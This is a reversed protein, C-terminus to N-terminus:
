KPIIEDSRPFGLSDKLVDDFEVLVAIKLSDPVDIKTNLVLHDYYIVFSISLM